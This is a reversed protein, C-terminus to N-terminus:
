SVVNHQVIEARSTEAQCRFSSLRVMHIDPKFHPTRSYRLTMRVPKKGKLVMFEYSGLTRIGSYSTTQKYSPMPRYFTIEM